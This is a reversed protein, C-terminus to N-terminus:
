LGFKALMHCHSEQVKMLRQELNGIQENKERLLNVLRKNQEGSEERKEKEEVFETAVSQFERVLLNLAEAETVAANMQLDPKLPLMAGVISQKLNALTGEVLKCDKLEKQLQEIRMQLEQIIADKRANDTEVQTPTQECESNNWSTFHCYSGSSNFTPSLSGTTSVDYSDTSMQDPNVKPVGHTAMTKVKAGEPNKLMMPRRSRTVLSRHHDFKKPRPQKPLNLSARRPRSVEAEPSTEVRAPREPALKNILELMLTERDNIVQKDKSKLEVKLEEIQVRLNELSCNSLPSSSAAEVQQEASPKFEMASHKSASKKLKFLNRKLKCKSPSTDLTALSQQKKMKSNRMLSKVPNFSPM